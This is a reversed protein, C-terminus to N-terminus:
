MSKQDATFNENRIEAAIPTTIKTATTRMQVTSAEVPMKSWILLSAPSTDPCFSKEILM